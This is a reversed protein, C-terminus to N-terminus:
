CYCQNWKFIIEGGNHSCNSLFRRKHSFWHKAIKRHFVYSTNKYNWIWSKLYFGPHLARVLLPKIVILIKLYIQIKLSVLLLFNHSACATGGKFVPMDEQSERCLLFTWCLMKQMELLLSDRQADRFTEAEFASCWVPVLVQCGFM